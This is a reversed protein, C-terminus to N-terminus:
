KSPTKISYLNNELLDGLMARYDDAGGLRGMATATRTVPGASAPTQALSKRFEPKRTKKEAGNYLKKRGKKQAPEQAMENENPSPVRKAAVTKAGSVTAPSKAAVVAAALQQKKASVVRKKPRTPLPTPVPDEIEVVREEEEEEQVQEEVVEPQQQVVEPEPEAAVPARKQRKKKSLPVPRPPLEPPAEEEEANARAAAAAAAAFIAAREREKEKEARKKQQERERKARQRAQKEQREQEQRMEAELREDEEQALRAEREAEEREEKEKRRQAVQAKAKAKAAAVADESPVVTKNKRVAPAAASSVHAAPPQSQVPGARASSLVNVSAKLFNITHVQGTLFDVKDNLEEIEREREAMEMEKVRMEDNMARIEADKERLVASSPKVVSQEQQLQQAALEQEVLAQRLADTEAQLAILQEKLRVDTIVEVAAAAPAITTTTTTTDGNKRKMEAITILLSQAHVSASKEVEALDSAKNRVMQVRMGALMLELSDNNVLAQQLELDLSAIRALAEILNVERSEKERCLELEFRAKGDQVREGWVVLRRRLEDNELELEEAYSRLEKIQGVMEVPADVSVSPTVGALSIPKTVNKLKGCLDGFSLTQITHHYSSFFFKLVIKSNKQFVYSLVDYKSYFVDCEVDFKL